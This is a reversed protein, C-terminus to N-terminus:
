KNKGAISSADGLRDLRRGLAHYRMTTEALSIISTNTDKLKATSVDAYTVLSCFAVRCEDSQNGHIQLHM